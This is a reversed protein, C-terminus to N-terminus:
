KRRITLGGAEIKEGKEDLLLYWYVGDTLYGANANDGTFLDNLPTMTHVLAGASNFLQITYLAPDIGNKVQILWTDNQGNGDPTMVQPVFVDKDNPNVRITVTEPTGTCLFTKPVITLTFQAPNIDSDLFVTNGIPIVMGSDGIISRGTDASFEVAGMGAVAWQLWTDNTFLEVPIELSDTGSLITPASLITAEPIDFVHMVRTISDECGLATKFYAQVVDGSDLGIGEWEIGSGVSDGNLYYNVLEAGSARFLVYTNECITDNPHNSSLDIGAPQPLIRLDFTGTGGCIQGSPPITYTVHYTGPSTAFLDIAGTLPDITMNDGLSDPIGVFSGGPSSVFNPLLSDPGICFVSNDYSFQAVAAPKIRIPFTFVERCVTRKAFEVVYTDPLTAALSIIGRDQDSFYVGTGSYLGMSDASHTLIPDPDPDSPCYPSGVYTLTTLTDKEVITVRDTWVAECAGASSINYEVLYTGPASAHPDFIGAISDIWVLGTTDAEFVGGSAFGPEPSIPVTDAQCYEIALYDYQASLNNRIDVFASDIDSCLGTTQYVVWYIGLVMNTDLTMIGSDPDVAVFSPSLGLSYVGGGDGTILPFPDNDNLCIINPAFIIGASDQEVVTLYDYATDSCVTTTQINQIMYPGGAPLIDINISDGVIAGPVQNAGIFLSFSYNSIRHVDIEYFGSNQCISDVLISFDPTPISDIDITAALVTDPCSPDPVVYFVNYNPGVPTLSIDLEGTLSDVFIAGNTSFFSGGAVGSQFVPFINPENECLVTDSYTLNAAAVGRFFLPLSFTDSCFTDPVIYVLEYPGGPTSAAPNVTLSDVLIGILNNFSTFYGNPDTRAPIFAPDNLCLTDNALNFTADTPAKIRFSDVATYTCTGSIGGYQVYYFGATSTGLNIAGTNPDVNLTGAGAIRTFSGSSPLYQISPLEQAAGLCLVSDPYDFYAREPANIVITTSAVNACSDVHPNYFITYTGPASAPLDVVGTSTNSFVLGPASSFTGGATGSIVAPDSFPNGGCYPSGVYSITPTTVPRIKIVAQMSDKCSSGGTTKFKITHTGISGQHLLLQGTTTNPLLLTTSSPLLPGTLYSFLGPSCGTGFIPLVNPGTSCYISDGPWSIAAVEGTDIQVQRVLGGKINAVVGFSSIACTSDPVARQILMFGILEQLPM